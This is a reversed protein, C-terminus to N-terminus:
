GHRLRWCHLRTDDLDLYTAQSIYATREGCAVDDVPDTCYPPNHAEGAALWAADSSNDSAGATRIFAGNGHGFFSFVESNRLSQHAQSANRGNLDQVGAYGLQELRQRMARAAYRSDIDGYEMGLATADEAVAPSCWGLAVVLGSAAVLVHRLNM